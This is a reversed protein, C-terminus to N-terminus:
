KRRLSVGQPSTIATIPLMLALRRVVAAQSDMVLVGSIPTQGLDDDAIRIPKDFQRNLDAVVNALPEDRYVMRGTRWSFATAPEMRSVRAARAGAIVLRQGPHLVYTRGAPGAPEPRVEVTGRAVTVALGDERNRVDFQTGVVRVIHDGTNITFPRDADAAVDFIAEGDGMVVRREDRALTVALRTEANLEVKSGDALTVAKHQGKATAYTQTAPKSPASPLIVILVGAAAALSGAGILWRRGVAPKARRREASALERGIAHASAGVTHWIALAQDYAQANGPAADLWVDFALGDAATLERAQLRAIWDSAQALREQARDDHEGIM